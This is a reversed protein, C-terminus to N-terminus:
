KNAESFLEIHRGLNATTIPFPAFVAYIINLATLLVVVPSLLGFVMLNFVLKVIGMKETYAKGDSYMIPKILILYQIFFKYEDLFQKSPKLYATGSFAIKLYMKLLYLAGVLRNGHKVEIGRKFTILRDYDGFDSALEEGVNLALGLPTIVSGNLVLLNVSPLEFEAIRSTRPKYRADVNFTLGDFFIPKLLDHYNHYILWYMLFASVTVYFYKFAAIPNLQRLAYGSLLLNALVYNKSYYIYKSGSLSVTDIHNSEFSKHEVLISPERTIVGELQLRCQLEWDEGGKFFRFNAFGCKEYIERPVICYHNVIYNKNTTAVDWSSDFVSAPLVVKGTEAVRTLLTSMVNKSIPFCDIDANILYKYGLTYGLVQGLGFGGSSGIPFAESYVLINLDSHPSSPAKGIVLVDFARTDQAQLHTLHKDLLEASHGSPIIICADNKKVGSELKLIDEISMDIM